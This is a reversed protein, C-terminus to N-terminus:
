RASPAWGPGVYPNARPRNPLPRAHLGTSSLTGRQVVVV